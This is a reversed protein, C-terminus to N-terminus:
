RRQLRRNWWAGRTRAEQLLRRHEWHQFAVLAPVLALVAAPLRRPATRNERVTALLAAGASLYLISNYYPMLGRELGECEELWPLGTRTRRTPWGVLHATVAAAGFGNVASLLADDSERGGAALRWTGGTTLTWVGAAAYPGLISALPMGVGAALEFVLHAALSVVTLRTLPRARGPRAPTRGRRARGAGVMRHAGVVPEVKPRDSVRRGGTRTLWFQVM